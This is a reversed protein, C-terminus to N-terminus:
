TIDFFSFPHDFSRTGPMELNQQSIDANQCYQCHLNCGSFFITGSGHHATYSAVKALQPTQCFGTEGQLRNIGCQHPCLHCSKLGGYLQEARKKIISIDLSFYAAKM